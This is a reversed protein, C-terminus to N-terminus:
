TSVERKQANFQLSAPNELPAELANFRIGKAIWQDGGINVEVDLVVDPATFFSFPLEDTYIFYSEEERVIEVSKSEHIFKGRQRVKYMCSYNPGGRLKGIFAQKDGPSGLPLLKVKLSFGLWRGITKGVEVLCKLRDNSDFPIHQKEDHIKNPYDVGHERVEIVLHRGIANAYKIEDVVWDSTTYLGKDDPGERRTTFFLTADAESIRDKVGQTISQGELEKGTLVSVGYTEILPIAYDQVWMADYPWGVFIKM